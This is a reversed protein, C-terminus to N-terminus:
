RVAGRMLGRTSVRPRPADRRATGAGRLSFAAHRERDRYVRADPSPASTANIPPFPNRDNSMPAVEQPKDHRERAALFDTFTPPTM